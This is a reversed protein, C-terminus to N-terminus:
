PRGGWTALFDGWYTLRTFNLQGCYYSFGVWQSFSSGARPPAPASPWYIAVGHLDGEASTSWEYLVVKRLMAIVRTCDRRVAKARVHARLQVAADYLDRVEPYTQPPTAAQRRAAAIAGRWQHLRVALDWGLDSVAATLQDWRTNLAIASAALTWKDHGAKMSQAALVALASASMAPDAQLGTLIRDYAFGTYGISDESAALAKALGRFQAEVEIMQGLCTDFGIMDVGGVRELAARMEDMDLYDNSTVDRATNGPWWGWGHDWFVLAYHEAPYNARTWTVLDCLTQPSGMDAAGWDAAANAADATMGQTVHFVRAGTWAGDAESPRRGRDALAVVQVDTNSGVPALESDIDHPIWKELNNDGSMYVMVTWKATPAPDAAARPAAALVLASCAIVAILLAAVRARAGRRGVLHVM